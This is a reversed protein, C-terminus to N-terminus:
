NLSNQSGPFLFSSIVAKNVCNISWSHILIIINLTYCFGAADSSSHTHTSHSLPCHNEPGRARPRTPQSFTQLSHLGAKTRRVEREGRERERERGRDMRFIFGSWQRTTWCLLARDTQHHQAPARGTFRGAGLSQSVAASCRGTCCSGTQLRQRRRVCEKKKNNWDHLIIFVVEGVSPCFSLKQVVVVAAFFFTLAAASFRSEFM